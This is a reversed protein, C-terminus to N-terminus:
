PALDYESLDPEKQAEKKVVPASPAQDISDEEEGAAPEIQNPDFPVTEEQALAPSSSAPSEGGLAAPAKGSFRASGFGGDDRALAPLSIGFVILALLVFRLM